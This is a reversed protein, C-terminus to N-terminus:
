GGMTPRADPNTPTEPKKKKLISQKLLKSFLGQLKTPEANGYKKMMPENALLYERKQAESKAGRRRREGPRTKGRSRDISSQIWGENGFINGINSM